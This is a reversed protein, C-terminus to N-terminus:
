IEFKWHNKQTTEEAEIMLSINHKDSTEVISSQSSATTDKSLSINHDKTLKVEDVENSTECMSVKNGFKDFKTEIISSKIKKKKRNHLEKKLCIIQKEMKESNLKLILKERKKCFRKKRANGKKILQEKTIKSM